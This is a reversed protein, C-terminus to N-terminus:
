WYYCAILRKKRTRRLHLGEGSLPLASVEGELSKVGLMTTIIESGTVSPARQPLRIAEFPLVVGLGQQWMTSKLPTGGWM